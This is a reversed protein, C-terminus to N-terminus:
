KEPEQYGNTESAAKTADSVETSSKSEGVAKAQWM